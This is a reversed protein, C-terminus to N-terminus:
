LIFNTFGVLALFMFAFIILTGIFAEGIIMWVLSGHQDLKSDESIFNIWFIVQQIWFIQDECCDM